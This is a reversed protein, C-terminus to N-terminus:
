TRFEVGRGGSLPHPLAKASALGFAEGEKIDFDIRNVARAISHEGIYDVTLNRVEILSRPILPESSM